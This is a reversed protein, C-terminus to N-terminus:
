VGKQNQNRTDSSCGVIALLWRCDNTRPAVWVATGQISTKYHTLECSNYFGDFNGCGECFDENACVNDSM